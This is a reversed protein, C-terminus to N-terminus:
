GENWEAYDEISNWLDSIFKFLYTLNSNGMSKLENTPVVNFGPPKENNLETISKTFEGWSSTEDLEVM